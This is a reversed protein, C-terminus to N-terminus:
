DKSNQNNLLRIWKLYKDILADKQKVAVELEIVRDNMNLVQTEMKRVKRKLQMPNISTDQNNPLPTICPVYEASAQTLGALAQSPGPPSQRQFLWKSGLGGRVTKKKGARPNCQKYGEVITAAMGEFLPTMMIAEKAAEEEFLPMKMAGGEFLPMKTTAGGEFMPMKTAGWEFSHM